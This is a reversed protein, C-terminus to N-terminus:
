SFLAQQYQDSLNLFPAPDLFYLLSILQYLSHRRLPFREKRVVDWPYYRGQFFQGGDTYSVTTKHYFSLSGPRDHNYTYEEYAESHPPYALIGTWVYEENLIPRKVCRTAGSDYTVHQVQTLGRIFVLTDNRTHYFNPQGPVFEDSIYFHM